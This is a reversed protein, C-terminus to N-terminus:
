DACRGEPQRLDLGARPPTGPHRQDRRRGRVRRTSRMSLPWDLQLLPEGGTCVVFATARRAHTPVTGHPAVAAALDAATDFRAGAPGDTGVFDTDCFQCIAGARDKERGTWLNCGHVPLVGGPPRHPRGRGAAHLLDGQGRLDDPGRGAGTRAGSRRARSRRVRPPAAPVLRLDRVARGDADPDYCSHTLAYDVGLDLGRQIIQAKTLDILPTHIECISAARSAPRPPSTPWRSTPARHVRAPLGPLRQLRARQRRHVRREVGLVEAWALAFSLFITNRAPVYTVPIGDTLDEVSSM